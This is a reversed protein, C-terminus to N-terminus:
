RSADANHIKKTGKWMFFPHNGFPFSLCPVELGISQWHRQASRVRWLWSAVLALALLLLEVWM